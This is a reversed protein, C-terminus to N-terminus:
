NKNRNTWTPTSSKTSNNWTPNASKIRNTWANTRFSAALGTLVFSGVSMLISYGKVLTVDIGTLVFSGVTVALQLLRKLGTDVGTLAFTGTTLALTYASAPAMSAVFFGVYATGVTLAMGQSGTGVTGNSDFVGIFGDANSTKARETAGTSATITGQSEGFGVLWCNSAVVTTNTTISTVNSTDFNANKSDPFGTQAVGSYSVAAGRIDNTTPFDGQNNSSAITYTGVPPAIMYFWSMPRTTGTSIYVNTNLATMAVGNFTCSDIQAGSTAITSIAVLLIRNDGSGVTHSWSISHSGRFVLATSATDLAIAM